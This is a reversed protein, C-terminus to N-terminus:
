GVTSSEVISMRCTTLMPSRFGDFQPEIGDGIDGIAGAVEGSQGLGFHGFETLQKIARTTDLKQLRNVMMQGPGAITEPGIIAVITSPVPSIM